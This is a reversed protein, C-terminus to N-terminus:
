KLYESNHYEFALSNQLITVIRKSIPLSQAIFTVRKAVQKTSM